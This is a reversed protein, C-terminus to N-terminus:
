HPPYGSLAQRVAARLSKAQESQNGSPEYEASGAWVTQQDRADALEVRVVNVQVVYTRVVPISAGYWPDNWGGYYGGGYYDTVQRTRQESSLHATVRLDPAAGPRAPRLGVQDLGESVAEELPGAPAGTGPTGTWNWSRYRGYDPPAAPYASPDFAPHTAAAPVPPPPLSQSKYPNPSQCAALALLAPILLSRSSM